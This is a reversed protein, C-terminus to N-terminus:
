SIPVTMGDRMNVARLSVTGGPEAAGTLRLRLLRERGPEVTVLAEEAVMGPCEARLGWILRRSRLRVTVEGADGRGADM